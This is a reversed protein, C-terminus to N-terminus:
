FNRKLYKYTTFKETLERDEEMKKRPSRHSGHVLTSPKPHSNYPKHYRHLDGTSQSSELTWHHHFAAAGVDSEDVDRNRIPSSGLTKKAYMFPPKLSSGLVM